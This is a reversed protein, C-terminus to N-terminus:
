DIYIYIYILNRLIKFSDVVSMIVMIGIDGVMLQIPIVIVVQVGQAGMALLKDRVEQDMQVVLAALAALVVPAVLAVLVVPAVLAVLVIQAV